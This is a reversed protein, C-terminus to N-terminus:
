SVEVTILTSGSTTAAIMRIFRFTSTNITGNWEETAALLTPDVANDTMILFNTATAYDATTSLINVWAGALSNRGQITCSSLATSGINKLFIRYTGPVINLNFLETNATTVPVNVNTIRNFDSGLARLMADNWNAM